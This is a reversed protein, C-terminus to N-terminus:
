TCRGFQDKICDQFRRASRRYAGFAPKSQVTETSEDYQLLGTFRFLECCYTSAWTYWYARKVGRIRSRHGRVLKEYSADLFRAMGRDNTQLHSSSRVRGQSAPLGLETVWVPKRGDGRERMREKFREVISAVGGSTRTYPHVAAVDFRGEINGRRYLHTLYRWSFNALGALVVKAGPDEARITRYAARLLRGYRPAYDEDPPRAWQFGLHPENWIQYARIPLRPLEPHEAWFAGNPGYRRILERLYTAYDSPNAPPSFTTTQDVRAWAPALIVVPLVEIGHAAASSVAVDTRSHDFPGRETPQAHAWEFNERVTEVGTTAMRAHERDWVPPSASRQIDADWNTGYFRLPAVRRAEAAPAAAAVCGAVVLAALLRHVTM